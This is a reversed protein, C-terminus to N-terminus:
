SLLRSIHVTRLYSKLDADSLAAADAAHKNPKSEVSGGKGRVTGVRKGAHKGDAYFKQGARTVVKAKELPEESFWREADSKCLVEIQDNINMSKEITELKDYYYLDEKLHDLAIKTALLVPPVDLELATPLHELEIKVGRELKSKFSKPM